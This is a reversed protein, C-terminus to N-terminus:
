AVERGSGGDLRARGDEIRYIRDAVSALAPQHSIAVVTTRGRLQAITRWVELETEADLAATAEDLILLDPDHVLARAIAIRQRQGGSLLSGREGVSSATGDPLRQVFDWAGAARLAAEVRAADIAPDGFSINMHISDHLLLTEQPVYGIRQRWDQLDIQSLPVSDVEVQGADPEVLGTLLDVLTTKGAGSPGLIATIRRAPAEVSIGELCPKGDFAVDVDRLSVSHELNARTEGAPAEREGEARERLELISWLASSETVMRQFKQQITNVRTLARFVLLALMLTSSPALSAFHVAAYLGACLLSVALPEQLARLAERSIVRRRLQRNLRQTDKALLPGIASERGTAKLLKVAQLSDTLRGLLSKLIGTQKRGARASIRVLFSLLAVSVLSGLSAALTAQWSVALSLGIYLLTEISYSLILTLHQFAHSARDAETAIANSVAGVPQRTYYGWRAALLARLLSLRLDTAVQAVAYGVQRKSLLILMAKVWFAGVVLSVLPGLKPEVGIWALVSRVHAEYPSGEGEGGFAMSILPLATSLGIAEALAAVVLCVLMGAIRWPYTRLFFAFLRM